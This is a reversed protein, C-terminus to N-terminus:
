AGPRTRRAPTPAFDAEEVFEVRYNGRAEAQSRHSPRTPAHTPSTAPGVFVELMEAAMGSMPTSITTLDVRLRVSRCTLRNVAQPAEKDARGRHSPAVLILVSPVLSKM